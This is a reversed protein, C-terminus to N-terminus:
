QVSVNARGAGRGADSPTSLFVRFRLFITFMAELRRMRVGARHVKTALGATSSHNHIWAVFLSLSKFLVSM